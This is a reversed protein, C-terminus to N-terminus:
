RIKGLEFYRQNSAHILHNPPNIKTKKCTKM